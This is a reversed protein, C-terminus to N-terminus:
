FDEKLRWIFFAEVGYIIATFFSFSTSIALFQLVHPRPMYFFEDHYNHRKRDLALLIGSIFFMGTAALSFM